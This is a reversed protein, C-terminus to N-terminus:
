FAKGTNKDKMLLLSSALEEKRDSLEWFFCSVFGSLLYDPFGSLLGTLVGSLTRVVDEQRVLLLAKSFVSCCSICVLQFQVCFEGWTNKCALIM